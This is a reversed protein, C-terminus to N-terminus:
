TFLGCQDPHPPKPDPDYIPGAEGHEKFFAVRREAIEIYEASLECGLYSFGELVAACLTTGSGTFPDLVVGGPPTILRCLYRMLSIPKVTPHHNKTPTHCEGAVKPAGGSGDGFVGAARTEEMGDLGANRENRSAKACYFFRSAGGSDSYQQTAVNASMGYMNCHPESMNIYLGSSHRVGTQEDLLKGAEPDLILNAPFRGATGDWGEGTGGGIAYSTSNRTAGKISKARRSNVDDGDTGIRCGDVNIAGTGHELVNAAVTRESLPKRALVIPEHSPKLATGWGDWRQAEPTAPTTIDRDVFKTSGDMNWGQMAGHQTGVVERNKFDEGPEGKRGNLRWVEEDMSDDFKLLDKLQLWQEWQPCSANTKSPALFHNAVASGWGCHTNIDEASLGAAGACDRLFLVVNKVDLYDDRRKDIAKGVDLSKPFGSGYLWMLQDRIEFGADEIACAMRHYTRSGGFSLLHGGPKLVRLVEMWMFISNAIGSDDWKKGMFGLEYPPDTVVADVSNDPMKAMSELCDGQYIM